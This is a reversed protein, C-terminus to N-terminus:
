QPLIVRRLEAVEAGVEARVLVAARGLRFAPLSLFIQAVGGADTLALASSPRFTSGLTKIIVRANQVPQGPLGRSVRARVTVFKGSRFEVEDVLSVEIPLQSVEPPAPPEAAPTPEGEAEPPPAPAEDVMPESPPTLVPPRPTLRGTDAQSMRKLDEIRGAHVAACILKHQRQLRDILIREDFGATILDDYRSRKSALIEGGVYVLSLIVPSGTGKDETQVHYVVGGHEVDTNYGTIM